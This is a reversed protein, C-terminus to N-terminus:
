IGESKSLDMLVDLFPLLTYDNPEKCSEDSWPRKPVCVRMKYEAEPNLGQLVKPLRDGGERDSIVVTRHTLANRLFHLRYFTEMDETKQAFQLDEFLGDCEYTKKKKAKGEFTIPVSINRAKVPNPRTKTDKTSYLICCYDLISWLNTVLMKVQLLEDIENLWIMCKKQVLYKAAIKYTTGYANFLMRDIAEIQQSVFKKYIYEESDEMKETM